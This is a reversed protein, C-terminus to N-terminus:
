KGIWKKGVMLWTGPTPLLLYYSELGVEICKNVYEKDRFVIHYLITKFIHVLAIKEYVWHLVNKGSLINKPQCQKYLKKRGM